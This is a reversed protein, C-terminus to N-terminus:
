FVWCSCGAGHGWLPTKSSPRRQAHHHHHHHLPGCCSAAQAGFSQHGGFRSVPSWDPSVPPSGPDHGEFAKAGYVVRGGVITLEAELDKIAEDPVSFYDASLVALDAHQGAAISGKRGDESSFWASGRTWLELAEQRTLVNDDGYLATGGVTRGTSLWYLCVWPNYSAVRTADTGAGVPLGLDLMKRVPPTQQAAEAGYRDVFYEGQFAMRHQIAVGGGLARIRELSRQSVTEAHDIMWHLGHLSTGQNVQEFVSLFQDISEDYTAHIRFPWRREALLRVVAELQKPMAESLNPRPKLFNEFDAASWVLNEGGGIVRLMDDGDGPHTMEVWKRYDDYEHGPVQAFLNYAIRVTTQGADALQKIIRYDDPYNQGGGGADIVSTVGLRNLERMFQLTSNIQEREALKPAQSITSYLILASPDAILMGTSNGSDDREVLGRDYTPPKTDYGLARLAARNLLARGYLHLVIVPTDPAAQNLEALTPMRREKFQFESWGGIVRVWQPPPTNEAQIRVMELADTLSSVGEWRLELNYSLGGRILHTHSDILGPIVTKGQLDIRKTHPGALQEVEKASGVREFRGDRIAVADATPQKPDITAFRGNTLIMDATM